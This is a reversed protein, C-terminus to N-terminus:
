WISRKQQFMVHLQLPVINVASARPSIPLPYDKKDVSRVNLNKLFQKTLDSVYKILSEKSNERDYIEGVDYDEGKSDSSSVDAIKPSEGLNACLRKYSLNAKL